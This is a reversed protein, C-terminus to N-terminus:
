AVSRARALRLGQTVDACIREPHNRLGKPTTHFLAWGAAAVLNGRDRDAVFSRPDSHYRFGDVEVGVRWQPWAGDVRALFRGDHVIRYQTVPPEIGARALARLLEVEAVSEVGSLDVEELVGRLRGAGPTSQGTGELFRRVSAVSVLKHSVCHGFLRALEDARAPQAAVDLLTRLPKTREVGDRTITLGALSRGTTHVQIWPSVPHRLGRALTVHVPPFDADEFGWLLAATQHSVVGRTAVAAMTIRALDEFPAGAVRYIGRMEQVVLGKAELGGIVKHSLGCSIAEKALFVGHRSASQAMLREFRSQTVETQENM